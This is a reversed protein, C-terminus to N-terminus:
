PAIRRAAIIDPKWSALTAIKVVDGTKPAHVVLGQGIAMGVHEPGDPGPRTYLLDGPRIADVSVATGNHVQEYTRREITIGGAKYAQQTLSSCDCRGMPDQGHADTCTGGWQYPTGLQGLAFKIASQVAPPVDTPIQYGAPLVGPPIVGWNTGDDGGTGCGSPTAPASPSPSPTTGPSPAPGPTSSGSLVQSIAQQLATSLPEWKAYADPFGSRQVKQAAVTLPLQEWGPVELLAKYFRTSAYVPDQIQEATGWGQSPRQQFLGLSDRDGYSLNRLNSEQLATALAIVQGRASVNMSMGTAVITKAFPIQVAPNDLGAIPGVQGTSGDLIKKVQAAVAASDVPQPGPGPTCTGSKTSDNATVALAPFAIAFPALLLGALGGGVWKQWSM